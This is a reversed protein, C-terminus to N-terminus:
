SEGPKGRQGGGSGVPEGEGGSPRRVLKQLEWCQKMTPGHGVQLSTSARVHEQRLFSATQGFGERPRGKRGVPPRAAKNYSFAFSPFPHRNKLRPVSTPEAPSHPPHPHHGTAQTVPAETYM